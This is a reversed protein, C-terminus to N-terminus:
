NKLEDMLSSLSKHGTKMLHIDLDEQIDKLLKPGQFIFSSYIQTFSGGQKWFELIEEFSSIGGVGIVSLSKQERAAECVQKRISSSIEKIYDGSLGGKDYSHQVTTNTAIIGSLKFEKALDVMNNINDDGLDPAIKLYLPKSNVKRKEDIAQCIDRFAEKTQLDRLGPTNPSSINIVLYDAVDAFYEYLYAYESPTDALSTLKNKGLNVGLCNRKSTKEINNLIKIAGDNPFGMANRISNTKPYRWIRPRDNGIQPEKTVTGVEVSGFGVQSFFDIAQANKDFGAALGVPFDWNMHGDNLSYIDPNFKPRQFAKHMDPFKNFLHMSKEHINEPDAKFAFYKFLPYINM